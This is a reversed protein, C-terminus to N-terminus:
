MVRRITRQVIASSTAVAQVGADLRRGLGRADHCDQRERAREVAILLSPHPRESITLTTEGLVRREHRHVLCPHAGTLRAHPVLGSDRLRGPV